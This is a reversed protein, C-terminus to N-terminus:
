QSVRFTLNYRASGTVPHVGNRLKGVGHFARRSVGHLVLVDGHRLQTGVTRGARTLGGLRFSIPLGISVSVIPQSFDREDSDRHLGMAAGHQYHNILCVDPQYSSHGILTAARQALDIFSEPMRPWAVGTLPDTETYRYGFHDSVWGYKGCNTMEVSMSKGSPTKMTRFRSKLAITRIEAIISNADPEAFRRILTAGEALYEIAPASWNEHSIRVKGMKLHLRSVHLSQDTEIADRRSIRRNM